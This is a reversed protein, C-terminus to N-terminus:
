EVAATGERELVSAAAAALLAGAVATSWWVYSAIGAELTIAYISCGVSIAVAAALAGLAVPNRRRVLTLGFALVAFGLAQAELLWPSASQAGSGYPYPTAKYTYYKVIGVVVFALVTAATLVLAWVAALSPGRRDMLSAVVALVLLVYSGRSLSYVWWHTSGEVEAIFAGLSAIVAVVTLLRAVM